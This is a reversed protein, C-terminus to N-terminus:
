TPIMSKTTCGQASTFQETFRVWGSVAVYDILKAYAILFQRGGDTLEIADSSSADNTALTYIAPSILAGHVTAM